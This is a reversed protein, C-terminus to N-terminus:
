HYAHCFHMLNGIYCYEVIFWLVYCLLIALERIFLLVFSIESGSPPPIRVWATFCPCEVEIGRPRDYCM